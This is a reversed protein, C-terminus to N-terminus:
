AKLSKKGRENEREREVERCIDPFSSFDQQIFEIINNNNNHKLAYQSSKRERKEVIKRREVYKLYFYEMYSNRLSIIIEIQRLSIM